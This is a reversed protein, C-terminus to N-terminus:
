WLLKLGASKYQTMNRDKSILTLEQKIAQWILMKDFPDKHQDFLPLRHYTAAVDPLLPSLSFGSKIALGPLEEPLFGTIDIKGLAQKLSVEWFSVANVFIENNVDEIINRASTSLKREDTLAWLFTHTDLLYSM